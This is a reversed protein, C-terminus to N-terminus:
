IAALVVTSASVNTILQENFKASRQSASYASMIHKAFKLNAFSVQFLGQLREALPNALRWRVTIPNEGEWDLFELQGCYVFPAARGESKSHRRVFLHVEVGRERHNKIAQGVGGRQTTRNQSQWQFIDSAVFQDRYRFQKELNEKELTVLLFMRQQQFVFGTQWLSSKFPLAFLTPIQERSYSRGIELQLMGEARGVPALVYGSASRDLAVRFDTGPLGADPGFWRRLISPLENADSGKRRVVNLAIKAFNAEYSESDISLNTWGSPVEPHQVRDPLFLIPRRNAHSVKCIFRDDAVAANRELYEAIRWEVIERVLEQFAECQNSPVNIALRFRGDEYTFYPVDGTGKGGSWAAIPNEELLHRLNATDDLSVSVDSQLRASRRATEAFARTLQDITIEGPLADENLMALLL